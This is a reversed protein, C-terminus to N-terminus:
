WFETDDLENEPETGASQTLGAAHKKKAYYLVCVCVSGHCHGTGHLLLSWGGGVARHKMQQSHVVLRLVVLQQYVVEISFLIHTDPRM